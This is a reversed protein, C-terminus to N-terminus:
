DEDEEDYDPDFDEEEDYLDEESEEVDEYDERGRLYDKKASSWYNEEEEKEALLTEVIEMHDENILDLDVFEEYKDRADEITLSGKKLGKCIVCM